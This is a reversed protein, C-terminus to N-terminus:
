KPGWQAQQKEAERICHHCVVEGEKIKAGCACTNM